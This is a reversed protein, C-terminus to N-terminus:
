YLENAIVKEILSEMTNECVPKSSCNIFATISLDKEKFYINQTHYGYDLGSHGYLTNEGITDVRFLADNSSHVSGFFDDRINANIFSQDTVASKLFLAMDEVSSVVPSSAESVNELYSKTEYTTDHDDFQHYGSIFDGQDKEIGIYYTADMGLPVLIRERLAISHHMGLVQDMILGALLYGTNSYKSGEGPKFYAPQNLAFVLFDIDTKVKDPEAILLDLVGYNDTYNYIGSSHNLLQRLTMEASNPIQNLIDDSLWTGITDDLNLLNDDALMAALLGIMPKGASATPMTHYVQMPNQTAINEVGASGLFQQEPTEVLLVIGPITDSVTEDILKQYDIRTEQPAEPDSDSGCATLLLVMSSCLLTSKLRSLPHM